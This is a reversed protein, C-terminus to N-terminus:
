RWITSPRRERRATAGCPSATFRVWQWLQKVYGATRAQSDLASVVFARGWDDVADYLRSGEVLDDDLTSALSGHSLDVDMRRKLSTIHLGIGNLAQM